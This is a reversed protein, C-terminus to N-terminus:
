ATFDVDLVKNAENDIYTFLRDQDWYLGYIHFDDALSTMHTYEEHTYFWRNQDWNVGWHLTSAFANNGGAACYSADSGRSEMIDIEGSSPWMGYEQETPLMWLAPWIM